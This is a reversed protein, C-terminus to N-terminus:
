DILLTLNRVPNEPVKGRQQWRAQQHNKIVCSHNLGAQQKFFGGAGFNLNEAEFGM